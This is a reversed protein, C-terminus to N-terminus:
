PSVQWPRGTPEAGRGPGSELAPDVRGSDEPFSLLLVGAELSACVLMPGHLSLFFLALALLSMLM